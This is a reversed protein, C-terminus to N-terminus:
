NRGNIKRLFTMILIQTKQLPSVKITAVREDDEYTEIEGSARIVTRSCKVKVQQNMDWFM